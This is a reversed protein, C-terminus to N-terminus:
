FAQLSTLAVDSQLLFSDKGISELTLNSELLVLSLWALDLIVLGNWNSNYLQMLHIAGISGSYTSWSYMNFWM